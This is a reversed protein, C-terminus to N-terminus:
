HYAETLTEDIPEDSATDRGFFETQNGIPTVGFLNAGYFGISYEPPFIAKQALLEQDKM